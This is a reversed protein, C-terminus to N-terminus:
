SSLEVLSLLMKHGLAFYHPGPLRSAPWVFTGLGCASSQARGELRVVGLFSEAKAFFGGQRSLM